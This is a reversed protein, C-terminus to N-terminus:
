ARLSVWLHPPSRLVYGVEDPSGHVWEAASFRDLLRNVAVVMEMQALLSGTCHHRGAGFSLIDAKPTFQRQANDTFRDVVYEEPATFLEEDRNASAILVFVKEGQDIERGALETPALVGRSVGHVPPAYRLIEACASMILSRDAALQAWVEPHDVLYRILSSLARDTTEVGAALLFSCFSLVEEDSLPEGEFEFNCLDSLMDDRPERRRQAIVPRLFEALRGRAELGRRSVEPDGRLNSAGAAVIMDYWHRFSTAEPIGMIEATIQLPLPTTFLAKLDVPEGTEIRDLYTDTLKEALPRYSEEILKPSRLRRALLASKKRHEHGSMHLIVRGHIASSGAGYSLPGFHEEDELVRKVERHRSLVWSDTVASYFIPSQERAARYLEYPSVTGDLIAAFREPITATSM